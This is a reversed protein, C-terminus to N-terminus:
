AHEYYDKVVAGAQEALGRRGNDYDVIPEGIETAYDLLAQLAAAPLGQDFVAGLGNGGYFVCLVTAPKQTPNIPKIM